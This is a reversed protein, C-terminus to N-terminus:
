AIEERFNTIQMKRNLKNYLVLANVLSTNLLLEFMLKKYWKVNKRLPSCCITVYTQYEIHSKTSNYDVVSKPKKKPVQNLRGRQLVDVTSDTNKTSIMMVDRKDKWKLVVVDTNSQKAVVQGRQLKAKEVEAANGRRKRRLTGILHTSRANLAHALTVSSYWNHVYVTRGNDLLPEVLDM